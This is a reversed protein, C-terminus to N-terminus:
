PAILARGAAAAKFLCQGLCALLNVDAYEHIYLICVCVCVRVCVCVCVCVYM